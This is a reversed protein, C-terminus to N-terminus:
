AHDTIVRRNSDRPREIGLDVGGLNSEDMAKGGWTDSTAAPDGATSTIPSAADPRVMARSSLTM